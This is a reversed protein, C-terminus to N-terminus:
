SVSIQWDLQVWATEIKGPKLVKLGPYAPLNFADIPHSVPEFCFYDAERGPCFLIATTLNESATVRTTVFDDGQSILATGNWKTFGNNIVGDPLPRHRAFNYHHMESVNCYVKSCHQNNNEWYGAAEFKLRTNATKPFWPHFGFGFPLAEDGKNKIDLGIRLSSRELDFRQVASYIFPGISGNELTLTISNKRQTKVKWPRLFGDGHIPLAEEELTRPVRLHKGNWTFGGGSIRNSFPVLIISGM